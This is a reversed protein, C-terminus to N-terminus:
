FPTHFSTYATHKVEEHMLRHYKEDISWYIIGSGKSVICTFRHCGGCIWIEYKKLPQIKYDDARQHQWFREDKM